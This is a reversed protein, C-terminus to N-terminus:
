KIYEFQGVKPLPKVDKIQLGAVEIVNPTLPEPFDFAPNSNILALNTTRELEKLGTPLKEQLKNEVMKEVNPVFINQRHRRFTLFSHKFQNLNLVGYKCIMSFM